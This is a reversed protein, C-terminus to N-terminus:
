KGGAFTKILIIIVVILNLCLTTMMALFRNEVKKMRNSAEECWTKLYSHREECLDHNYEQEAM